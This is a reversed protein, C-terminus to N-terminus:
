RKERRGLLEHVALAALAAGMFLHAITAMPDVAAFHATLDAAISTVASGIAIGIAVLAVTLAHDAATPKSADDLSTPTTM